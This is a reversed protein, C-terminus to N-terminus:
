FELELATRLSHKPTDRDIGFLLGVQWRLQRGPGLRWAGLAAPGLAYDQDDLYLELAPEFAARHLYRLQARFASEFENGVDAGFEYELLANAAAVWRHGLEKEWLVGAALEHRDSDDGQELEFLLGWDSAYEGQETLQYRAEFEWGRARGDGHSPFERLLYLETSWRENWGYGLSLQQLTLAGDGLGRWSLGYEIEREHPNVYPHYVGPTAAPAARPALLLAAALILLTSRM